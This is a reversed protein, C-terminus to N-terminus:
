WLPICQREHRLGRDAVQGFGVHEAARAEVVRDADVAPRDLRVDGAVDLLVTVRVPKAGHNTLKLTKKDYGTMLYPDSAAGKTVAANLWPGGHGRVLDATIEGWQWAAGLGGLARGVGWRFGEGSPFKENPM